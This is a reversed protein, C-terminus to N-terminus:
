LEPASLLGFYGGALGVITLAILIYLPNFGRRVLWFVVLTIALPIMNLLIQDLFDQIAIQADRVTYKLPTTIPLLTAVLAGV